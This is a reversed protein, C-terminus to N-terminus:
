RTSTICDVISPPANDLWIINKEDLFSHSLVYLTRQLHGSVSKLVLDVLERHRFASCRGQVLDHQCFLDFKLGLDLLSLLPLVPEFTLSIKDQWPQSSRDGSFTQGQEIGCIICFMQLPLYSSKSIAKLCEGTM